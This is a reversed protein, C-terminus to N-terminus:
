QVPRPAPQPQAKSQADVKNTPADAKTPIHGEFIRRLIGPTLM